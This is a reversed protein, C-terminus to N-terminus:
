MPQNCLRSAIAVSNKQRSRSAERSIGPLLRYGEAGGHGSPRRFQWADLRLDTQKDIGQRHDGRRLWLLADRFVQLPHLREVQRQAFVLM